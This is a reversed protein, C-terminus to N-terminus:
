CRFVEYFHCKAAILHLVRFAVLHETSASGCRFPADRTVAPRKYTNKTYEPSFIGLAMFTTLGKAGRIGRGLMLLFPSTVRVFGDMASKTRIVPCAKKELFRRLLHHPFGQINDSNRHRGGEWSGQGCADDIGLPPQFPLAYEANTGLPDIYTSM